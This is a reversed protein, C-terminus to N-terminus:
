RMRTMIVGIVKLGQHWPRIQAPYLVTEDVVQKPCGRLPPCGQQARSEGAAVDIGVPCHRIDIRAQHHSGPRFRQARCLFGSQAMSKDPLGIGGIPWEIRALQRDGGDMAPNLFVPPGIMFRQLCLDTAQVTGMAADIVQVTM